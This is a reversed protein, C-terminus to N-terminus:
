NDGALVVGHIKQSLEVYPQKRWRLWSASKSRIDPCLYRAGDGVGVGGDEGPSSIKVVAAAAEFCACEDM